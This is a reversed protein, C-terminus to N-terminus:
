RVSDFARKLQSEVTLAIQKLDDNDIMGMAATPRILTVVTKEEKEYVIVNCPFM